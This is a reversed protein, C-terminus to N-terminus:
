SSPGLFARLASYRMCENDYFDFQGIFVIPCETEKSQITYKRRNFAYNELYLGIYFILILLVNLNKTFKETFGAKRSTAFKANSNLVEFFACFETPFLKWLKGSFIVM